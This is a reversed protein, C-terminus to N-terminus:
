CHPCVADRRRRGHTEAATADGKTAHSQGVARRIQALQVPVPVPRAHLLADVDVEFNDVAQVGDAIVGLEFQQVAAVTVAGAVVHFFALDGIAEIEGALLFGIEVHRFHLRTVLEDADFSLHVLVDVAVADHKVLVGSGHAGAAVHAQRM